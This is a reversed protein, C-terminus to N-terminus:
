IKSRMCYGKFIAKGSDLRAVDLIENVVNRCVDYYCAVNGPKAVATVSARFGRLQKTNDSRFLVSLRRGESMVVEPTVDGCFRIPIITESPNM